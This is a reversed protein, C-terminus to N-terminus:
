SRAGTLRRSLLWGLIAVVAVGVLLWSGIELKRAVAGYSAGATHGLMTIAVAWVVGGGVNALAFRSASMESMGALGPVLTRVAPLWRGLVVAWAGRRRLLGLTRDVDASRRTMGPLRAIMSRGHHRGVHYGVQNGVIAGAVAAVMVAWLPLTGAHAVFGGILVTTQGPVVLGFFSGAEAAPLAFVLVLILAPSLGVVADFLGDM